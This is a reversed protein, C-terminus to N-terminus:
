EGTHFISTTRAVPMAATILVHFLASARMSTCHLHQFFAILATKGDFSKLQDEDLKDVCEVAQKVKLNTERFRHCFM